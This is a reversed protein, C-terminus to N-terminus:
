LSLQGTWKEAQGSAARQLVGSFAKGEIEATAKGGNGFNFTLTKGKLQGEKLPWAGSKSKLTGNVKQFEQTLSLTAEEAGPLTVKWDGAVKAPVIWFYIASNNVQAHDDAEWEAMTFAHSVVRTGPRLEDLIRPRLQVNLKPLLYLFLVDADAFQMKFLDAQKFQVRDTVGAAQANAVSEEIRKPDIDVGVGRAAFDRAATIVARGDGCGLDYVMEGPRVQALKLMADVVPQPTPVFVVDPKRTPASAEVAAVAQSQCGAGAIVLAVGLALLNSTKM